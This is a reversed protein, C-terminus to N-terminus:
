AIKKALGDFYPRVVSAYTADVFDFVSFYDAFGRAIQAQVYNMVRVPTEVDGLMTIIDLASFCGVNTGPTNALGFSRADEVLLVSPKRRRLFAIHGHLRYGIHLDISDYVKLNLVDGSLTLVEFGLTQAFRAIKQSRKNPKSHFAVFRRATSFREAIQTLVVFSQADYRDHHQITFVVSGIERPPKFESGIHGEDYIALDGCYAADIDHRKLMDVIIQDRCQLPGIKEVVSKLFDSTQRGYRHEEFASFAPVTHQFSCGIPYFDNLRNLDSYLGFLKPYTEDLVSFGPAIISRVRGDPYEDLNEERFLVVPDYHPLRSQLMKMFSHTILHDGVNGSRHSPFTTLLIDVAHDAM